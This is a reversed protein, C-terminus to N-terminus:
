QSSNYRKSLENDITSLSKAFTISDFYDVNGCRKSDCICIFLYKYFSNCFTLVSM